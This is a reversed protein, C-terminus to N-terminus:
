QMCVVRPVSEPFARNRGYPSISAVSPTTRRRPASTSRAESTFLAPAYPMHMASAGNTATSTESRLRSFSRSGPGGAGYESSEFASPQSRAPETRM